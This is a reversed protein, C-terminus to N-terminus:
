AAEAHRISAPLGTAITPHSFTFGTARLASCDTPVDRSFAAAAVRGAVVSAVWRPVSRPPRAGLLQAGLELLERQTTPTGDTVVWPHARLVEASLTALHALARAADDVHILPLHNAGDGIIPLKGKALKPFIMSAFAKGSGYVTGLHISAQAVDAAQLANRVAIGIRAFGRPQTVFTSRHSVFGADDFALDDVGSISFLLPRSPLSAMARVVEHTTQVRYDASRQLASETLREPLRPQILDIVVRAPELVITDSRVVEAGLARLQQANADSRALAKVKLGAQLAARVTASGVFGSAGLIFLDTTLM